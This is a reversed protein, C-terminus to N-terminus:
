HFFARIHRCIYQLIQQPHVTGRIIFARNFNAQTFYLTYQTFVIHPRILTLIDFGFDPFIALVSNNILNGHFQILALVLINGSKRIEVHIRKFYARIKHDM